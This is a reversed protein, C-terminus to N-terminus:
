SASGPTQDPPFAPPAERGQRRLHAAFVEAFPVLEYDEDTVDALTLGTSSPQGASEVVSQADPLEPERGWMPVCPLMPLFAPLLRCWSTSTSATASPGAQEDPISGRLQELDITFNADPPAQDLQESAGRLLRLPRLQRLPRATLRHRTRPAARSSYSKRHRARTTLTAM